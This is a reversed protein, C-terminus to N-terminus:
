TRTVFDFWVVLKRRSRAVVEQAFATTLDAERLLGVEALFAKKMLMANLDTKGQGCVLELGRHNKMVSLMVDYSERSPMVDPALFAVDECSALELGKRVAAACDSGEASDLRVAKVNPHCFALHRLLKPTFGDTSGFDVLLVELRGFIANRELAAMARGYLSWGDNCVPVVVSVAPPLVCRDSEASLRYSFRDASYGNPLKIGDELKLLDGMKYASRWFITCGKDEMRDVYDHEVAGKTIYDCATYKFGNVMDELYFPGYESRNKFFAVIDHDAWVEETVDTASVLTRSAWSQAEFMKRVHETLEDAVVLVRRVPVKAALGLARFMEALRDYCTEKAMVLRIGSTQREAITEESYGDLMEAVDWAKRAIFVLPFAGVLGLSYNSILLNGAALLEGVRNAFMTRSNTVSNINIAWDFLKHVRQLLKHEVSPVIYDKFILPFQISWWKKFEYNRDVIVLRRATMLVGTFIRGLEQCRQAFRRSWSGSFIVSRPLKRKRCGIPNHLEPNICFTLVHVRDHGCDRRYESVMEESSTFVVDCAKAIPLFIRYSPPDEKSCFVVKVGTARAASIMEYLALNTPAGPRTAVSEWEQGRLGHWTSVVLFVDLGPLQTRWDGDPSFYVFEAAPNVADWFFEDCVIGVRVKHREYYRCGNSVPLCEALRLIEEFGLQDKGDIM